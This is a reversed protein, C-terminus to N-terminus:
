SHSSEVTTLSIMTLDCTGNVYIECHNVVDANGLRWDDFAFPLLSGLDLVELVYGRVIPQILFIWRNKHRTLNTAVLCRASSQGHNKVLSEM